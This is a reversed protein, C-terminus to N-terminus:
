GYNREERKCSELAIVLWHGGYLSMVETLARKEAIKEINTKLHKWNLM